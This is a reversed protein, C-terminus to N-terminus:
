FLAKQVSEVESSKPGPATQRGFRKDVLIKWIINEHSIEYWFKCTKGLNVLDKGNLFSVIREAVLEPLTTMYFLVNQSASQLNEEVKRKIFAM